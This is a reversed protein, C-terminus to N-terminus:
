RCRALVAAAAEFRRLRLRRTGHRAARARKEGHFVLRGGVSWAIRAACKAHNNERGVRPASWRVVNALGRKVSEAGPQRSRSRVTLTTGNYGRPARRARALDSPYGASRGCLVYQTSRAQRSQRQPWRPAREVGRRQGLSRKVSVAGPRRSRSRFATLLAKEDRPVRGARAGGWPSGASRGRVVRQAGRVQRTLKRAWRPAREVGRCQGLSRKLSM